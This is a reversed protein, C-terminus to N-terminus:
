GEHGSLLGTVASAALVAAVPGWLRPVFRRAALVAVAVYPSLCWPCVVVEGLPSPELITVEGDRRYARLVTRGDITWSGEGDRVPSMERTQLAGEVREPGPNTSLWFLGGTAPGEIPHRAHWRARAKAVPPFSDRGILRTLRSVALADITATFPTM